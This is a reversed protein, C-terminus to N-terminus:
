PRTRLVHVDSDLAWSPVEDQPRAVVVWTRTTDRQEWAEGFPIWAYCTAGTWFMAEIPYHVQCFVLREDPHADAFARLEQLQDYWWAQGREKHQPDIARGTDDIPAWCLGVLVLAGALGRALWPLRVQNKIGTETVVETTERLARWAWAAAVGFLIWLPPGIVMLYHAMKTAALSFVLWPIFMWAALAVQKWRQDPRSWFLFGLLAAALVAYVAWGFLVELRGTQWWLGHAHGELAEFLHRRNYDSEWAAELPFRAHTYVHWWVPLAAALILALSGQGLTRL